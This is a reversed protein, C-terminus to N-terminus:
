FKTSTLLIERWFSVRKKDEYVTHIECLNEGETRDRKSVMLDRMVDIEM